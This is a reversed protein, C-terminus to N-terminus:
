QRLLRDVLTLRHPQQFDIGSNGRRDEPIALFGAYNDPVPLTCVQYATDNLHIPRELTNLAQLDHLIGVGDAKLIAEKASWVSYFRHLAATQADEIWDREAAHLYHQFLGIEVPKIEEVDIGIAQSGYALAVLQGSHSLNFCHWHPIFPKNNHDLKYDHLLAPPQGTELICELLLLRAIARVKQDSFFKYRAIGAVLPAPLLTACSAVVSDPFDDTHCVKVTIM